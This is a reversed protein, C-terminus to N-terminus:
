RRRPPHLVTNAYHEWGVERGRTLRNIIARAQEANIRQASNIARVFQQPDIAISDSAFARMYREKEEATINAGGFDHYYTNFYRSITSRLESAGAVRAMEPGGYLAARIVTDDGGRRLLHTLPSLNVFAEAHPAAEHTLREWERTPIGV